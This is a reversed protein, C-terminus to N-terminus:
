LDKRAALLKMQQLTEKLIERQPQWMVSARLSSGTQLEWIRQDPAISAILERLPKMSNLEYPYRSEIERVIDALPVGAALRNTTLKSMARADSIRQELKILARELRRMEHMIISEIDLLAALETALAPPFNSGERKVLQELWPKYSKLFSLRFFSQAPPLPHATNTLRNLLELLGLRTLRFTPVKARTAQRTFGDAALGDLYRCLQTNQFPTSTLDLDDSWNLFLETFFKLDRVRFGTEIFSAHAALTAAELYV